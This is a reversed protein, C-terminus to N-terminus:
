RSREARVTVEFDRGCSPCQAWDKIVRKKMVWELLTTAAKKVFFNDMHRDILGTADVTGNFEQGCPCKGTYSIGVAM